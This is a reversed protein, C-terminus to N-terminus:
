TLTRVIASYDPVAGRPQRQDRDRHCESVGDIEVTGDLMEARGADVHGVFQEGM